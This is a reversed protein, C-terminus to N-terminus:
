YRKCMYMCDHTCYDGEPEAIPCCIWRVSMTYFLNEGCTNMLQRTTRPSCTYVSDHEVTAPRVLRDYLTRYRLLTLHTCTFLMCLKVGDSAPSRPESEKQKSFPRFQKLLLFMGGCQIVHWHYYSYLRLFFETGQHQTGNYRANRLIYM